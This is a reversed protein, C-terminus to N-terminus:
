NSYAYEITGILQKKRDYAEETQKLGKDNYTYKWVTYNRHGTPVITMGVIRNLGDYEYLFDPLMKKVATNFRVVDTINNRADYYYYYTEVNKGHNSWNEEGVNGLEDYNFDVLMTDVGNKIKLMQVPKGNVGYKWIHAEVLNYDVSTDGTNSTISKIRGADDYTYVVSTTVRGDDEETRAIKDNVYYSILTSHEGTSTSSTTVLKDGKDLLEQELSFGEAVTHDADYSIAKIKKINAAKLLLHHANSQTTVVIDNYYYQAM